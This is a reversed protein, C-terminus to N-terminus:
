ARCRPWRPTPTHPIMSPRPMQPVSAPMSAVSPAPRAMPPPTVRPTEQTPEDDQTQDPHLLDAM